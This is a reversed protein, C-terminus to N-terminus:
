GFFLLYGTSINGYAGPMVFCPSRRLRKWGAQESAEWGCHRWTAPKPHRHRAMGMARPKGARERQPNLRAEARRRGCSPPRHLVRRSDNGGIIPQGLAARKSQPRSIDEGSGRGRDPRTSCGGGCHPPHRAYARRLREEAAEPGAGGGGIPGRAAGEASARRAGSLPVSCLSASGQWKGLAKERPHAPPPRPLALAIPGSEPAGSRRSRM